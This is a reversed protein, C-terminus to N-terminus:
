KQTENQSGKNEQKCKLCVEQIIIKEGEQKIISPTHKLQFRKAIEPLLYYFNQKYKQIMEYYSGESLFIRYAITDLYGGKELWELEEKDNANVVVIGYSLRAYKAPNFSFGQPYIINGHHDKIDKTLTWTMDPSFTNNKPAPTLKVMDKPRWNKINEKLKDRQGLLKQELEPRNKTLHEQILELIDREKFEYTKGLNLINDAEKAFLSASLSLILFLKKM